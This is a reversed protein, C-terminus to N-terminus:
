FSTYHMLYNGPPCEPLGTGAVSCAVTRYTDVIETCKEVTGDTCTRKQAQLGPGCAPNEGSGQCTGQNVWPGLQKYAIIQLSFSISFYLLMIELSIVRDVKIDIETSYM